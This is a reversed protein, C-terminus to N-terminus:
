FIGPCPSRFDPPMPPPPPVEVEIVVKAVMVPPGLPPEVPERGHTVVPLWLSIVFAAGISGALGALGIGAVRERWGAM